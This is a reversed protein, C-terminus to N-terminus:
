EMGLFARTRHDKPAGLVESPPGQEVISGSHLVCVHDSISRAFHMEHTVIVLSLGENKLASLMEVVDQVREPDLASTPEDMLLVEPKMALARAIAV